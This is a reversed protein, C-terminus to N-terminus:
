RAVAGIYALQVCAEFMVGMTVDCSEDSMASCDLLSSVEICGEATADPVCWEVREGSPGVLVTEAYNSVCGRPSDQSCDAKAARLGGLTALIGLLGGVLLAKTNTM